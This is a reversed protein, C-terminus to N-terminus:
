AVIPQILGSLWDRHEELYFKGTGGARKWCNDDNFSEDAIAHAVRELENEAGDFPVLFEAFPADLCLEPAAFQMFACKYFYKRSNLNIDGLQSGIPMTVTMQRFRGGLLQLFQMGHSSCITRGALRVLSLALHVPVEVPRTGAIPMTKPRVTGGKMNTFVAQGNKTLRAALTEWFLDPFQAHRTTNAPFLVVSAGIPMGISEALRGAELDWEPPITPREMQSDWPLRLMYRFLDTQSIGGRGPFKYLSFLEDGRCDGLDYQHASFPVDLEFRNSDLHQIVIHHMFRQEVTLVRGFRDPFMQTIPLHDPQVIMTISHGHQKVFERALACVITTEGISHANLIIWSRRAPDRAEELFRAFQRQLVIDMLDKRGITNTKLM